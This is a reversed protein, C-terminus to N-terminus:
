PKKIMPYYDNDVLRAEGYEHEYGMRVYFPMATISANVKVLHCDVFFADAELAELILKGIGRGQMDPEIFVSHIMSADPEDLMGIAGSGIIVDDLTAVYTHRIKARERVNEPSNKECLGEMAEQTYDKINVEMLNKCIIASVAEADKEVFDRVIIDDM